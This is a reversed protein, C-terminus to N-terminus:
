TLRWVAAFVGAVFGIALSIFMVFYRDTKTM